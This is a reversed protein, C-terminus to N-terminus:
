TIGYNKLFGTLRVVGPVPDDLEDTIVPSGGTRGVEEAGQDEDGKPIRIFTSYLNDSTTTARPLGTKTRGPEGNCKNRSLFECVPRIIRKVFTM